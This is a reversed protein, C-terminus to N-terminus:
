TTPHGSALAWERNAKKTVYMAADAAKILDEVTEGDGPYAALGVSIEVVLTQSGFPVPSAVVATVRRVAAGGDSGVDLIAIFEDGGLRFYADAARASDRLRRGIAALIADGAEHGFTDNAIKFKDLDM